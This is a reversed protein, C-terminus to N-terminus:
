GRQIKIKPAVRFIQYVFNFYICFALELFAYCVGRVLIRLFGSISFEAAVTFQACRDFISFLIDPVQTGGIISGRWLVLVPLV